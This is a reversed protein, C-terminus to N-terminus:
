HTTSSEPDAADDAQGLVATRVWARVQSEHRLEEQACERLSAALEAHGLQDTLEILLEWAALDALEASLMTGLCQTLTTKPDTLVAMFGLGQVGIVDACPTVATPDAGLSELASALIGAHRLEDDRIERLAEATVTPDHTHSAALKVLLADYLRVGTREYALREGLKDLLVTAQEGKMRAMMDKALGKLKMPPPMTGVPDAEGSFSLRMSYLASTEPTPEGEGLASLRTYGIPSTAIGTKNHGIETPKTANSM